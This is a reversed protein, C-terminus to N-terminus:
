IEKIDTITYHKPHSVIFELYAKTLDQAQVTETHRDEINTTYEIEFTKM